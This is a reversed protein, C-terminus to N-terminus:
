ENKILKSTPWTFKLLEESTPERLYNSETIWQGKDNNTYLMRMNEKFPSYYGHYHEGLTVPYVIRGPYDPNEKHYGEFPIPADWVLKTGSPLNKLTM